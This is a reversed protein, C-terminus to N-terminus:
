LGRLRAFIPEVVPLVRTIAAENRRWKEAAPPTHTHRSLPLSRSTRRALRADYAVGAFSCLRQTQAHPDALFDAYNLATWRASPLANLDDLVVRNTEAWQFAAIEELPAEHYRQWGLPLLLSWPRSRGPLKPYTVWKGARWAEIISSLNEKPDRWLFIFQADPYLADFFPIRLANKPTKELVRLTTEAGPALGDRDRLAERLTQDIHLAVTANVNGALLRNSEINPSGPCLAPLNEVLWHAEGGVTVFGPSEALTEFLLTSGSRPAAVIFVPREIRGKARAVTAQPATSVTGGDGVSAHQPNLAYQLVRAELVDMASMGNSACRIPPLTKVTAALYGRLHEYNPWGEAVDGYLSWGLRWERCFGFLLTQLTKVAEAGGAGQPQELDHALDHVLQEVEAPPLVAAGNHREFLLRAERTPAYALTAGNSLPRREFEGHQSEFVGEWFAASGATDAVLHVRYLGSENTVSHRRWNDFVWAEGEAMYVSQDDCHFRVGQATIVPIHIRVRHFWHYNIDSHEPVLAGPALRMLRSRSWVVGFYGLVQRIYPCRQLATTAAMRGVTRDNEGGDVSILRIASNGAYGSPHRQWEDEGFQAIEAQLRAADFHLPLRYFPHPLKM